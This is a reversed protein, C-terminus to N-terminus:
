LFSLSPECFNKLGINKYIPPLTSSFLTEDLSKVGKNDNDDVRYDTQILPNHSVLLGIIPHVKLTSRVSEEWRHSAQEEPDYV